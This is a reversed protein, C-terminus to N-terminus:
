KRRQKQFNRSSSKVLLRLRYKITKGATAAPVLRQVTLTWNFCVTNAYINCASIVNKLVEGNLMMHRKGMVGPCIKTSNDDSFFEGNKNKDAYSKIYPPLPSPLSSCLYEYGNAVEDSRNCPEGIFAFCLTTFYTEDQGTIASKEVMWKLLQSAVNEKTLEDGSEIMLKIQNYLKYPGIKSIGSPYSDCGLTTAILGRLLPSSINETLELIPCTALITTLELSRQGTVTRQSHIGDIVKQLITQTSLLLQVRHLAMKSTDRRSSPDSLITFDKVIINEVVGSLYYYDSDSTFVVIGKRKTMENAIYVDAQSTAVALTRIFGGSYNYTTGGCSSIEAQIEESFTSPIRFSLTNEHKTLTKELSKLESKIRELEEADNSANLKQRNKNIILRNIRAEVDAKIVAKRRLSTVRKKDNTIHPDAVPHVEWGLAKLVHLLKMVGAVPGNARGLKHAVWNCDVFAIKKNISNWKSALCGLDLSTITAEGSAKNDKAKVSFLTKVGDKIGM